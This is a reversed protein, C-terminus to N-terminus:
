QEEDWDHILDISDAYVTCCSSDSEDLFVAAAAAFGCDNCTVLDIAPAEKL